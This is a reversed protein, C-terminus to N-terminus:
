LGASLFARGLLHCYLWPEANQAIIGPSPPLSGVMGSSPPSNGAMQSCLPSNGALAQCSRIKPNSGICAPSFLGLALAIKAGPRPLPWSCSPLLEKPRALQLAQGIALGRFANPKRLLRTEEKHYHTNCHITHPIICARAPQNNIAYAAKVTQVSSPAPFAFATLM